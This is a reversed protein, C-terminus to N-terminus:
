LHYRTDMHVQTQSLWLLFNEDEGRRPCVSSRANLQKIERLPFGKLSTLIMKAQEFRM